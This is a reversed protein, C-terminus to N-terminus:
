IQLPVPVSFRSVLATADDTCLYLAVSNWVDGDESHLAEAGCTVGDFSEPLWPSTPDFVVNAAPDGVHSGGTTRIEVGNVSATTVFLYFEWYPHQKTEDRLQDRLEFGNWNYNHTPWSEFSGASDTQIPEEGFVQTLKFAVDGGPTGYPLEQLVGGQADLVTMSTM